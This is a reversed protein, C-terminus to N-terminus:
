SNKSDVTEEGRIIEGTLPQLQEYKKRLEIQELQEKENLLQKKTKLREADKIPGQRLAAREIRQLYNIGVLASVAFTVSLGLTIKSATSM